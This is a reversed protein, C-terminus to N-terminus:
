KPRKTAFVVKYRDPVTHGISDNIDRRDDKSIYSLSRSLRLMEKLKDKYGLYDILEKSVGYITTDALIYYEKWGDWITIDSNPLLKKLREVCSATVASANVYAYKYKKYENTLVLNYFKVLDTEYRDHDEFKSLTWMMGGDNFGNDLINFGPILEKAKKYGVILVPADGAYEDMSKITKIYAPVDRVMSQTLIYGLTNM